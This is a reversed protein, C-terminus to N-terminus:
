VMPTNTWVWPTWTVASRWIPKITGINSTTDIILTADVTPGTARKQLLQKNRVLYLSIPLVLVLFLIIVLSIIKKGVLSDM